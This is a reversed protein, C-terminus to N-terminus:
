LRRHMPADQTLNGACLRLFRRLWRFCSRLGPILSWWFDELGLINSIYKTEALEQIHQAQLAKILKVNHNSPQVLAGHHKWLGPGSHRYSSDSVVDTKAYFNTIVHYNQMLKRPAMTM